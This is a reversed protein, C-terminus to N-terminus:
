LVRLPGEDPGATGRLIKQQPRSFAGASGACRRAMRGGAERMRQAGPDTSVPRLVALEDGPPGPLPDSQRVLPM